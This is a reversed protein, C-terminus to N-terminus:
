SSCRSPSASSSGATQPPPHLHRHRKAIKLAQELNSPRPHPLCPRGRRPPARARCAFGPRLLRASGACCAVSGAAAGGRERGAACWAELRPLGELAARRWGCPCCPCCPLLPLAPRWAPAWMINVAAKDYDDPISLRVEGACGIHVFNRGFTADVKEVISTLEPLWKGRLEQPLHPTPPSLPPNPPATVHAPTCAPARAPAPTLTSIHLNLWAALAQLVAAMAAGLQPLLAAHWLAACCAV